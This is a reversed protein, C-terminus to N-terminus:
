KTYEANVGYPMMDSYRWLFGKYLNGTESLQLENLELNIAGMGLDLIDMTAANLREGTTEETYDAGALFVKEGAKTNYGSVVLKLNEATKGEISGTVPVWAGECFGEGSISRGEVWEYMRFDTIETSGEAEIFKFTIADTNVTTLFSDAFKIQNSAELVINKNIEVNEPFTVYVTHKDASLTKTINIADKGNLTTNDPYYAAIGDASELPANFSVAVSKVNTPVETNLVAETGDYNVVKFATVIAETAGEAERVKLNDISMEFGMPEKWAGFNAFMLAYIDTNKFRNAVVSNGSVKASKQTGDEYTVNLSIDSTGNNNHVVALKINHWENANFSIANGDADKTELSKNDWGKGGDYLTFFRNGADDKSATTLIKNSYLNGDDAYLKNEAMASLGFYRQEGPNVDFEIEFSNGAKVPKELRYTVYKENATNMTGDSKTGNGLRFRLASTNDKGEAAYTFKNDNAGMDNAANYNFQAAFQNGPTVGDFNDYANYSKDTYVKINDVAVTKDSGSAKDCYFIIGEIGYMYKAAEAGNADIYKLARKAFRNSDYKLEKTSNDPATFTYTGKNMNVDIKIHTWEDPMMQINILYAENGGWYTGTPSTYLKGDNSAASSNLVRSDKRFKDAEDQKQWEPATTSLTSYTKYDMFDAATLLGMGWVVSKSGKVDFEVTFNGSYISSPFKYSVYSSNQAAETLSLQLAKDKVGDVSTLLYNTENWDGPVESQGRRWGAPMGSVYNDFDENIYYRKDTEPNIEAGGVVFKATDEVEMCSIGGTLGDFDLEYEGTPLDYFTFDYGSVVSKSVDADVDDIIEGTKVNKVTFSPNVPLEMYESFAVNVLCEESNGYYDTTVLPADVIVEDSSKFHNLYLNDVLGKGSLKLAKLKGRIPYADGIQVGNRFATYTGSNFDFFLDFKGYETKDEISLPTGEKWTQPNSFITCNNERLYFYPDSLEGSTSFVDRPNNNIINPIGYLSLTGGDYKADFSLHLTGSMLTEDFFFTPAGGGVRMVTTGNAEEVSDVDAAFPAHGTKFPEWGNPLRTDGTNNAANEFGMLSEFSTVVNDAKMGANVAIQPITICLATAMAIIKKM